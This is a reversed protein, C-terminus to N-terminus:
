AFQFHSNGLTGPVPDPRGYKSYLYEMGEARGLMKLLHDVQEEYDSAHLINKGTQKEDDIPKYKARLNNKFDSLYRSRWCVGGGDMRPFSYFDPERHRLYLITMDSGAAKLSDTKLHILHAPV